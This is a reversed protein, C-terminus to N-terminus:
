QLFLEIGRLLTRWNISCCGENVPTWLEGTRAMKLRKRHLQLPRTLTLRLLSFPILREICRALISMESIFICGLYGRINADCWILTKVTIWPCDLFQLVDLHAYSAITLMEAAVCHCMVDRTAYFASPLRM